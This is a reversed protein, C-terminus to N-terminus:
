LTSKSVIVVASPTLGLMDLPKDYDEPGFLKKPFNTMLSFPGPEDTRNIEVYLRVASLPEKAGFTQTLATGNTLRIQLKTHTYEKSASKPLSPTSVPAQPPPSVATTTSANGGFKAKRALKDQEIQDLVRQRALKDEQKERRRQEVLKQMELEEVKRKAELMDKGSQIRLRERELAERKEREEREQRKLKMLNEVKQLQAQKEEETLPKKEETSESFSSHGSKAAHFEVELQNKFLRGCEDCKLSKAEVGSEAEADDSKPADEETKTANEANDKEVKEAEEVEANDLEDEHALLWEMVEQVNTGKSKSIAHKARNEPFGMEVLTKIIDSM